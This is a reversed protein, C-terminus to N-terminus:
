EQRKRLVPNVILTLTLEPIKDACSLSCYKAASLTVDIVFHSSSRELLTKVSELFTRLVILFDAPGILVSSTILTRLLLGILNM